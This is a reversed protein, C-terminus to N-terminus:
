QRVRAEALETLGNLTDELEQRQYELEDSTVQRGVWIPPGFAVVVRSFPKALVTRDWSRFRWCPHAAISVPLLPAGSYRALLLIGKQAV